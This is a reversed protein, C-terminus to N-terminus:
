NILSQLYAFEKRLKKLNLKRLKEEKLETIARYSYILLFSLLCLSVVISSDIIILTTM